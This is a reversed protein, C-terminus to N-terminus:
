RLGGAVVHLVQDVGAEFALAHDLLLGEVGDLQAPNQIVLEFVLDPTPKRATLRTQKSPTRSIVCTSCSPM